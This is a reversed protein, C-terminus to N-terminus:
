CTVTIAILCRLERARGLTVRTASTPTVSHVLGFGLRPTAPSTANTSCLSTNVFQGRLLWINYGCVCIYIYKNIHIKMQICVHANSQIVMDQLYQIIAVKFWRECMPAESSGVKIYLARIREVEDFLKDVDGEIVQKFSMFQRILIRQM